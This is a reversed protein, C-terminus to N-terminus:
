FGKNHKKFREVVDLYLSNIIEAITSTKHNRISTNPILKLYVYNPKNLKFYDEMKMSYQKFKM